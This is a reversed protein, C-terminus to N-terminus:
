LLCLLCLMVLAIIWSLALNEAGCSGVGIVEDEADMFGKITDVEGVPEGAEKAYLNGM